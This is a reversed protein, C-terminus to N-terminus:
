SKENELEIVKKSSTEELSVVEKFSAEIEKLYKRYRESEEM